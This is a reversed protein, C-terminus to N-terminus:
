KSAKKLLKSKKKESKELLSEWYSCGAFLWKNRSEVIKNCENFYNKAKKDILSNLKEELPHM